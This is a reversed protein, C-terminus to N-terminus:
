RERPSKMLWFVLAIIAFVVFNSVQVHNEAEIGLLSLNMFVADILEVLRPQLFWFIVAMIAYQIWKGGITNFLNQIMM